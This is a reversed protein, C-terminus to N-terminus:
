AAEAMEVALELAKTKVNKNSGYWSSTLRSDASRGVLHDTMYTM